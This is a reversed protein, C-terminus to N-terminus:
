CAEKQAQATIISNLHYLPGCVANSYPLPPPPQSLVLRLSEYPSPHMEACNVVLAKFFKSRTDQLAQGCQCFSFSYPTLICDGLLRKYTATIGGQQCRRSLFAVM